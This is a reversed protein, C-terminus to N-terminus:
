LMDQTYQVPAVRRTTRQGRGPLCPVGAELVDVEVHDVPGRPLAVVIQSAREVVHERCTNIVYGRIRQDDLVPGCERSTDPAALARPRPLVRERIAELADGVPQLAVPEVPVLDGVPCPRLAAPAPLIEAVPGATVPPPDTGPGLRGDAPVAPPIELMRRAVA